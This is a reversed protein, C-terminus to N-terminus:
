KEKQPKVKIPEFPFGYADRNKIEQILNNNELRLSNAEDQLLMYEDLLCRYDRVIDLIIDIYREDM